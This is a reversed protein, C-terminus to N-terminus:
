RNIDDILSYDVNLLYVSIMFRTSVAAQKNCAIQLNSAPLTSM